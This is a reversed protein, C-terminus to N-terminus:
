LALKIAPRNFKTSLGFAAPKPSRCPSGPLVGHQTIKRFAEWCLLRLLEESTKLICRPTPPPQDKPPLDVSYKAVLVLQSVVPFATLACATRAKASSFIVESMSTCASLM